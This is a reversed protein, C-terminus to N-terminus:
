ECTPTDLSPFVRLTTIKGTLSKFDVMKLSRDPLRIEPLTKGVQLPEGMLTLPNGSLTIKVSNGSIANIPIMLIFSSVIALFLFKVKIM